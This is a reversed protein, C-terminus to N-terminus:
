IIKLKKYLLMQMIIILEIFILDELPLLFITAIYIPFLWRFLTKPPDIFSQIGLFIIISSLQQQIWYGVYLIIINPPYRLIAHTSKKNLFARIYIYHM